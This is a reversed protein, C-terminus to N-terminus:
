GNLCRRKGWADYSDHEVATGSEDTIVAISGLNDTHFYRTSPPVSNDSHLVRVGIMSGGIGIFDYWASTGSQFLETHVGFADFYLTTGEPSVQKFRQHDVDHSFSLTGSGQTISAPKNYSTYTISRNLGTLQNGNPDYTFSTTIVGGSISAVAHPRASGALPYVYNGGDSKSLLNGIADYLFTKIPVQATSQTVTASTVRNVPDYTFQEALNVITDARTLVNGLQDYTYSFDAVFNGTGTNALIQTLRGTQPDFDQNTVVGNGAIQQTLHLEADRALAKWLQGGPGVIQQAYGLSTYTYTLVLGSPYTVTGLRSNADYTAAFTYNTGSVTVTAQIPR